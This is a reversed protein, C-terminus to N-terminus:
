QFLRARGLRYHPNKNSREGIPKAPVGGVITFEPVDKTVVAGGAVVSGDGITVGPMITVRPGIFVYDGIVVDAVIAEFDDSNLDHESNYILVQSAIDTHNGIKVKARGDIFVHDGVITDDGIIINAPNFFRGWMHITSGRGLQLGAALYVLQRFVHSPVLGTLYLLYLEFDLFVNAVRNIGKQVLEIPTLQRGHRDRFM